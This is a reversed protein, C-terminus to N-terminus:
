QIAVPLQTLVCGIGLPGAPDYVVGSGQVVVGQLAPDNPIPVSVTGHGSPDLTGGIGASLSAWFLGDMVLPFLFPGLPTGPFVFELAFVVQFTMGARKPAVIELQASGGVAAAGVLDFNRSVYVTAQGGTVPWTWPTWLSQLAVPPLVVWPFVAPSAAFDGLGDGNVDGLGGWPYVISAPISQGISGIPTGTPGSIASIGESAGPSARWRILFDDSGDGDADGLTDVELVQVAGLSAATTEYLISFSPLSRVSIKNVSWVLAVEPLGDGSVDSMEAVSGGVFDFTATGSVATILSGTAGSFVGIWGADSAGGVDTGPAGVYFDALGDGDVDDVRGIKNGFEQGCQWTNVFAQLGFGPAEFDYVGHGLACSPLFYDGRILLQPWGDGDLDGVGAIASGISSANSVAPAAIIAMVSGDLGSRVEVVSGSLISGGTKLAIEAHGDLDLDGAPKLDTTGTFAWMNPLSPTWSHVLSGNLGSRVQAQQPSSPSPASTSVLVVDAVGMADVDGAATKFGEGSPAVWYILFPDSAIARTSLFATGLALTM